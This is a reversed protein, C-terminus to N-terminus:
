FHVHSGPGPRLDQSPKWITPDHSGDPREEFPEHFSRVQQQVEQTAARTCLSQLVDELCIWPHWSVTSFYLFNPWTKLHCIEGKLFPYNQHQWGVLKKKINSKPSTAEEGRGYAIGIQLGVRARGVILIPIALQWLIGCRALTEM